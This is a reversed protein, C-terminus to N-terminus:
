TEDIEVQGGAPSSWAYARTAKPHDELDFVHVIGEWVTSGKFTEKVPV